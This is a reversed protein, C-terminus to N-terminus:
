DNQYLSSLDKYFNPYSKNVCECNTLLVKKNDLATILIALSMAIRHDNHSNLPETPEIPLSEEVWIEDETSTIKINFKKLEEEMAAIRDSEKLRLRRANIFHTTGKAQSALVMLIPGLDPCNGLDITSSILKSKKTTIKDEEILINGNMAKIIDLIIKDGQLSNLNMNLCTVEGKLLGLVLFFAAQSFDGEVPYSSPLYNQNGNIFLSNEKQTININFKKLTQITMDVYSKSQYPPVIKISSDQNLFPLLYLLGSIFQSSINGNIEFNNTIYRKNIIIHDKYIKINEKFIEQYISLPRKLLYPSCYITTENAFYSCLPILFRLTSGSENAFFSIKEQHMLPGNVIINESNIKIKAGLASLGNITALIDQNLDINKIISSGSALSACILARHADSKSSPVNISGKINSSYLVKDM